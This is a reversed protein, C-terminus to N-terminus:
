GCADNSSGERNEASRSRKANIVDSAVRTITRGDLPQKAMEVRAGSERKQAGICTRVM